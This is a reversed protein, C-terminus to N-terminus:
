LNNQSGWVALQGVEQKWASEDSNGIVITDDAFKMLKVSPDRATCDNMYFSFLLSLSCCHQSGTSITCTNSTSKGLRVLQRRDTLFNIIWQCSSTPLSLQTLKSMLIFLGCVPHKCLDRTQGSTSFHFHSSMYGCFLARSM